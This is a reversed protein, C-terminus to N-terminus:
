ELGLLRRMRLKEERAARYPARFYNQRSDIYESIWSQEEIILRIGAQFCVTQVWDIASPTVLRMELPQGTYYPLDNTVPILFQYMLLQGIGIAPNVIKFELLIYHGASWAIADARPRYPRYVSAAETVGLQDISEQPIKGLPVNMAFNGHPFEKKMYEAGYRREREVTM